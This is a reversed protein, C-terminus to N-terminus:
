PKELELTCVVNDTTATQGLNTLFERAAPGTIRGILAKEGLALGSVTQETIFVATLPYMANYDEPGYTKEEVILSVEPRIQVHFKGDKASKVNVDLKMGTDVYQIQFQQARPDFYVIPTKHGIHTLAEVGTAILLDLNALTKAADVSQVRTKGDLRMMQQDTLQLLQLRAVLPTRVETKTEKALAPVSSLLWGALLTAVVWSRKM